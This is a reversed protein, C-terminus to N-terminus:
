AKDIGGTEDLMIGISLACSVEGPLLSLPGAALSMPFMSITETPLYLSTARRRAEQGLPSGLEIYRTPDAIHIWLRQRKRIPGTGDIDSSTEVMDVSLADDIEKTSADDIAFAPLHTLDLRSGEDLDPPPHSVIDAAAVELYEDFVSRVKLRIVDLNTHKTWVGLGILIQRAVEPTARRDINQLFQKARALEAADNKNEMMAKEERKIDEPSGVNAICGLRELSKLALQVQETENEVIFPADETASYIRQKLGEWRAAEMAEVKARSRMTEVDGQQRPEYTPCNIVNGGIEKFCFHEAGRTLVARTAYCSISSSDGLILESLTVLDTGAEATCLEDNNCDELLMEWVTRVMEGTDAADNELADIAADEHRGIESQTTVGLANPVLHTVSRPPVSYTRGNSNLIKLNKKGERGIIAGLTTQKNGGTGSTFEVLRGEKLANEKSDSKTAAAFLRSTSTSPLPSTQQLSHSQSRYHHTFGNCLEAATITVIFCLSRTIPM